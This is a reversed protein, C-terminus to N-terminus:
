SREAIIHEIDDVTSGITHNDLIHQEYQNLYRDYKQRKTTDSLIQYAESISKFKHPANESKNKDPHYIVALKKYEKNITETTANTPVNLTKYPDFKTKTSM